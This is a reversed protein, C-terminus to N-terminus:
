RGLKVSRHTPQAARFARMEEANLRASVIDLVQETSLNEVHARFELGECIRELADPLYSAFAHRTLMTTQVIERLGAQTRRM